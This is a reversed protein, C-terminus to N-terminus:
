VSGVWQSEHQFKLVEDGWSWWGATMSRAFLELANYPVPLLKELLGKLCPKRSHVDPVAAVIRRQPIDCAQGERFLLLVEYPRRWVGDLATVPAGGITTKIWVWEEHLHLNLPRVAEIVNGRVSVKNTIWIAVLGQPALCESVIGVAQLFPDQVQYESTRYVGSRRASRNSWPPDMLIMHFQKPAALLTQCASRFGALGRELTSLIFSASPPIFFDGVGRAELVVMRQQTPNCVAVDRLCDISSFRTRMETTSLVVPGSSSDTSAPSMSIGSPTPPFLQLHGESLLAQRPHCWDAHGSQERLYGQIEALASSIDGQVSQHYIRDDLRTASLAAERKSGKPETSPYPDYLASTSKITYPIQQGQEISAPIDLLVVRQAHSCYIVSQPM